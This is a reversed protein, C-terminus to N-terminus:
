ISKIRNSILKRWYEYDLKERSKSEAKSIEELIFDKNNLLKIDEIFVLPLDKYISNYIANHLNLGGIVIPVRGMYMIEWTRVCEIGNGIPSIVSRYSSVKRFYEDISLGSEFDIYSSSICINKINTRYEPFKSFLHCGSKPTSFNAYLRDYHEVLNMNQPKLYKKKNFIESNIDGHGIRSINIENEVGTPIPIVKDNIVTTNTAFILKVNNPCKSLLYDDFTYDGSSIILIVNKNMSCIREYEQLILDIKCFIVYENDHFDNCYKNMQILDM